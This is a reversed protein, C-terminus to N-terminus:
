VKIDVLDPKFPYKTPLCLFIPVYLHLFDDRLSGLLWILAELGLSGVRLLSLSVHPCISVHAM